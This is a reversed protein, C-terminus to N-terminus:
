SEDHYVNSVNELDSVLVRADEPYIHAYVELMTQVTDGIRDAILKPSYGLHILLAVHSHRLSHISAGEFGAITFLRGLRSHYSSHHRPFLETDEDYAYMKSIYEEISKQLRPHIMVNRGRNNKVGKHVMYGSRTRIKHKFVAIHDGQIDGVTLATAESIRMGTWFLVDILLKTEDTIGPMKKIKEIDEPKLYVKDSEVSSLRGIGRCPNKKLDYMNVAFDLITSIRQMYLNVSSPKLEKSMATRINLIDVPKIGSIKRDIIPVIFKSEAVAQYGRHTTPRFEAEKAELFRSCLSGFSMDESPVYEELFKREYALADRKTAFGRKLKSKPIGNERYQFKIFWKGNKDKYAPM